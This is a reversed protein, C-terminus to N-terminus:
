FLFNNLFYYINGGSKLVMETRWQGVELFEWNLHWECSARLNPEWARLWKRVDFASVDCCVSLFFSFFFIDVCFFGIRQDFIRVLQEGGGRHDTRDPRAEKYYQCCCCCCCPTLKNNFGRKLEDHIASIRPTTGCLKGRPPIGRLSIWIWCRSDKQFNIGVPSLPFRTPSFFSNWWLNQAFISSQLFNSRSVELLFLIFYFFPTDEPAMASSRRDDDDGYYNTM